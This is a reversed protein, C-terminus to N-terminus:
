HGIKAKGTRAGSQELATLREQLPTSSPVRAVGERLVSAATDLDGASEFYQSLALYAPVYDPWKELVITFCEVAELRRGLSLLAIGKKYHM